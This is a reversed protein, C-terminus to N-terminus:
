RRSERVLSLGTIPFGISTRKHFDLRLTEGLRGIFKPLPPKTVGSPMWLGATLQKTASTLLKIPQPNMESDIAFL